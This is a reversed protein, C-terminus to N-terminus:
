LQLQLNFMKIRLQKRETFVCSVKVHSVLLRLYECKNNKVEDSDETESNGIAISKIDSLSICLM